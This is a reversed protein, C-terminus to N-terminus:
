AAVETKFRILCNRGPEGERGSERRGRAVRAGEWAPERVGVQLRERGGEMVVERWVSAHPWSGDRDEECM